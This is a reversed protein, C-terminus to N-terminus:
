DLLILAPDNILSHAIGLQQKMGKSYNRIKKNEYDKINFKELIFNIRKELASRDQLCMSVYYTLFQKGTLFDPYILNEPLYGIKKKISPNNIDQGFLKVSGGNPLVIGLLTKIFTSKGAGNPGSLGFIEGKEVEISIDDLATIYEKRDHKYVKIKIQHLLVHQNLLFIYVM